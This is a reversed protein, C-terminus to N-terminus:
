GALDPPWARPWAAPHSRQLDPPVARHHDRDLRDERRHLARLRPFHRRYGLDRLERCYRRFYDGDCDARALQRLGSAYRSAHFDKLEYPSVPWGDGRGALARMM